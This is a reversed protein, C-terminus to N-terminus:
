VIEKVYLDTLHKLSYTIKIPLFHASKTLRDVIVWVVDHRNTTKPLDVMFDMSIQEWKSEAIEIPQLVGALRQHKAKIKQCVLCKAVFNAVDKKM